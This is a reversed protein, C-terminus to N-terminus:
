TLSVTWGKATAVAIEAETLTNIAGGDTKAGTAGRFKITNTGTASCDPLSNITNVASDHNYRSYDSKTSFWDSDDKLAQYTADDKVEKDATIGSNYNTYNTTSGGYGISNTLDITQSKWPRVVPTGDENTAFTINKVRYLGTFFSSFQNSTYSYNDCHINVLEDLCYLSNFPKSYALGYYYGTMNDNRMAKMARDPISRLSFCEDFLGSWPSFNSNTSTLNYDKELLVILWEPIERMMLCGYLVSEFKIHKTINLNVQPISKLKSCSSFMYGIEANDKLNIDFPINEITSNSSFMNTAKTIDKTTIKDGVQEIFWNWGGGSFKYQCDGTITLGEDPITMLGNIADVMELPTYKNLEIFKGDTDCAWLKARFKCVPHKDDYFSAKVNCYVVTIYDEGKFGSYYRTGSGSLGNEYPYVGVGGNYSVNPNYGSVPQRTIGAGYLTMSNTPKDSFEYSYEVWIKNTAEYKEGLLTPLDIPMEFRYHLLGSASYTYPEIQSTDFDVEYFCDSTPEDLHLYKGVKNRVADGLATLTTDQISYNM